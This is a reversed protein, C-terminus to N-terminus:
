KHQYFTVAQHKKWPLFFLIGCLPNLPWAVLNLLNKSTRNRIHKFSVFSLSEDHPKDGAPRRDFLKERLRGEKCARRWRIMGMRGLSRTEENQKSVILHWFKSRQLEYCFSRLWSLSDEQKLTFLEQKILSLVTKLFFHISFILKM